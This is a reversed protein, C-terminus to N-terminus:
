FFIIYFKYMEIGGFQGSNQWCPEVIIDQSTLLEYWKEDQEEGGTERINLAGHNYKVYLNRKSENITQTELIGRRGSSM